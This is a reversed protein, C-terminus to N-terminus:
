SVSHAIGAGLLSKKNTKNQKENDSSSNLFLGNGISETPQYQIWVYESYFAQAFLSGSRIRCFPRCQKDSM